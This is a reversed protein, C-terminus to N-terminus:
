WFGGILFDFSMSRRMRELFMSPMYIGELFCFFLRTFYVWRRLYINLYWSEFQRLRSRMRLM